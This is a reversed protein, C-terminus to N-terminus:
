AEEPVSVYMLSRPFELVVQLIVNDLKSSLVSQTVDLIVEQVWGSYAKWYHVTSSQVRHLRLAAM